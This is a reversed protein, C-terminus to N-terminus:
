DYTRLSLVRTLGEGRFTQRVLGINPAYNEVVSALPEKDGAHRYLHVEYRYTAGGFAPVFVQETGVFTKTFYFGFYGFFFAVRFSGSDAEYVPLAGDWSVDKDATRDMVVAPTQFWVIADLDGVKRWYGNQMIFPSSVKLNLLPVTDNKIVWDSGGGSVRILQTGTDVEVKYGRIWTVTTDVRAYELTRGDTLGLMDTGTVILSPGPGPEEESDDSCAATFLCFCLFCVSWINKV